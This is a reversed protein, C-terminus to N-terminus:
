GCKSVAVCHGSHPGVNSVPCCIDTKIGPDNVGFLSFGMYLIQPSDNVLRTVQGFFCSLM